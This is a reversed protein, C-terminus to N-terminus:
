ENAENPEYITDFIEIDEIGYTRHGIGVRNGAAKAFVYM